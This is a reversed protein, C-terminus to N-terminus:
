QEEDRTIRVVPMQREEGGKSVSTDGKEEKNAELQLLSSAEAVGYGRFAQRKPVQANYSYKEVAALFSDLRINAM